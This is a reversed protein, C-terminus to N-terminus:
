RPAILKAGPRVNFPLALPYNQLAVQESPLLLSTQQPWMPMNLGYQEIMALTYNFVASCLENLM